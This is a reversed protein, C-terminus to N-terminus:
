FVEPDIEVVYTVVMRLHELLPDNRDLLFPAHHKVQLIQRRVRRIQVQDLPEPPEEALLRQVRRVVLVVLAEGGRDVAAQVVQRRYVLTLHFRQQCVLKLCKLIHWEQGRLTYSMAVHVEWDETKSFHGGQGKLENEVLFPVVHTLRVAEEETDTFCTFNKGEVLPRGEPTKVHHLACPAHCVLAIPKDAALFGEILKSSNQDEALDWM